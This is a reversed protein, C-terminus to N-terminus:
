YLHCAVQSNELNKLLPTEVRCRPMVFACRGAFACGPKPNIPSSVEGQLLNLRRIKQLTPDPIPNSAILAKTYPHKPNEYVDRAPGVEVLHGLYMVAIRDCLVRVMSLDHAIFLYSLAQELQLDKLLHIIQAQISVDLASIPEDCVILKPELALARAIGIRQRQGGSFEHPFRSAHNPDLGVKQLWFSIKEATENKKWLGHAAPGEAVIAAVTMRPNLASYPDQFIMQINRSFKKQETRNFKKKLVEGDFVISGDSEAHLRVLTRGLTSKGCGSEGILGLIENEFIDLTVNNLAYLNKKRGVKFIKSINRVSLLPAKLQFKSAEM